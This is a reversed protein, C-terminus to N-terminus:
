PRPSKYILSDHLARIRNLETPSIYPAPPAPDQPLGKALIYVVPIIVFPSFIVMQDSPIGGKEAADIRQKNRLVEYNSSPDGLENAGTLGQYTSIKLNNAANVMEQDTNPRASMIEARINGLRPMVVVAPIMLTDGTLYIGAVYEQAHLTDGIILNFDKYGVCSFMITDHHRAYFSVMGRDDAAGATKNRIIYHAGKLPQRTEADLVLGHFLIPAAQQASLRLLSSALLIFLFILFFRGKSNACSSRTSHEKQYTIFARTM